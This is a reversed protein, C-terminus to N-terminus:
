ECKIKTPDSELKGAATIGLLWSFNYGNMFDKADFAGAFKMPQYAILAPFTFQYDRNLRAPLNPGLLSPVAEPDEVNLTYWNGQSKYAILSHIIPRAAVPAKGDAKGPCMKNYGESNMLVYFKLDKEPFGNEISKSLIAKAFDVCTVFIKNKLIQDSSRAGSLTALDGKSLGKQLNQIAYGYATRHQYYKEFDDGMKMRAGELQGKIFQDSCDQDKCLRGAFYVYNFMFLNKVSSKAAVYHVYNFASKIQNPVPSASAVELTLASLAIAVILPLYM